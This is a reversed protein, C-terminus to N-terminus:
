LSCVHTRGTPTFYRLWSTNPLLWSTALTEPLRSILIGTRKRGRFLLPLSLCTRGRGSDWNGWTTYFLHSLQSSKVPGEQQSLVPSLSCALQISIPWWPQAPLALIGMWSPLFSGPLPCLPWELTLVLGGRALTEGWSLGASTTGKTLSM